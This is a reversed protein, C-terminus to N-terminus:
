SRDICLVCVHKIRHNFTHCFFNREFCMSMSTQSTNSYTHSFNDHFHFYSIQTYKNYKIAMFEIIIKIMFYMYFVTKCYNVVMWNVASAWITTLQVYEWSAFKIQQTKRKGFLICHFREVPHCFRRARPCATGTFSAWTWHLSAWVM